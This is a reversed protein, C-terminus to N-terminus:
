KRLRLSSACSRVRGCGYRQGSLFLFLSFVVPRPSSAAQKSGAGGTSLQYLRSAGNVHAMRILIRGGLESEAWPCTWRARGLCTGGACCGLALCRLSHCREENRLRWRLCFGHGRFFFRSGVEGRREERSFRFFPASRYCSPATRESDTLPSTM